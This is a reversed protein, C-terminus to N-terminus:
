ETAQPLEGAALLFHAFRQGLRQHAFNLFLQRYLNFHACEDGFDLMGVSVKADGQVGEVGSVKGAARLVEANGVVGPDGQGIQEVVGESNGVLLNNGRKLIRGDLILHSIDLKKSKTLTSFATAASEKQAVNKRFSDTAGRSSNRSQPTAIQYWVEMFFFCWWVSSAM